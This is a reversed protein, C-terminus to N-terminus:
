EKIKIEYYENELVDGVSATTCWLAAGTAKKMSGSIAMCYRYVISPDYVLAASTGLVKNTFLIYKETM